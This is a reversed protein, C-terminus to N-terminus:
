FPIEDDPGFSSIDGDFDEVVEGDEEIRQEFMWKSLGYLAKTCANDEDDADGICPEIKAEEIDKQYKLPIPALSKINDYTNDDKKFHTVLVSVPKGLQADWDAEEEAEAGSEFIKYYEIEKGKDTLQFFINFPKTWLVRPVVGDELEVEEGLIEIGLAIKQCPSKVEGKFERTHLGLDAVYVLRGEYEQGDELNPIADFEKKEGGEAVRRKLGGAM